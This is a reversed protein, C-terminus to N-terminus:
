WTHPTHTHTHRNHEYSLLFPPISTSTSVYYCQSRAQWPAARDRNPISPEYIVMKSAEKLEQPEAENRVVGDCAKDIEDIVKRERTRTLTAEHKSNEIDKMNQLQM